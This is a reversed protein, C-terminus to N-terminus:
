KKNRRKRIFKFITRAIISLFIISCNIVLLTYCKGKINLPIDSYTGDLNQFYYLYRFLSIGLYCLSISSAVVLTILGTWLIPHQKRWTVKKTAQQFEEDTIENHYRKKFLDPDIQYCCALKNLADNHVSIESKEWKSVNQRTYGTLKAIYDQTFGNKVRTIELFKGDYSTMTRRKQIHM